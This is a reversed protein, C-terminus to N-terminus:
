AAAIGAYMESLGVADARLGDRLMEVVAPYLSHAADREGLTALAELSLLIFFRDAVVLVGGAFPVTDRERWEDLFRREGRYAELLLRWGRVWGVRSAPPDLDLAAECQRRAEDWEGKWFHSVSRVYSVWFSWGMREFRAPECTHAYAEPDGKLMAVANTRAIVANQLAAHQGLHVALQEAEEATAVAEVPKGVNLLCVSLVSLAEALAWLDGAARLATVAAKGVEVSRSFKAFDSEALAQLGLVQGLVQQDGLREALARADSLKSVFTTYDGATGQCGGLLALTRAREVTEGDPVFREAQEAVALAESRRFQWQLLLVLEWATRAVAEADGLRRYASFAETLDRVADELRGLSRHTRGCAFLISCREEDNLQDFSLARAYFGLADEFAAAAVAQHGARTLYRLAKLADVGAGAEYFHHALAAVHRVGGAAHVVEIAEGVRRHLRQRRPLSLSADLTQRILEHAFTYRVERDVTAVTILHAGEADELAELLLDGKVEAAADLVALEFNRGIVAATTLARRADDSVRELRRGVLLRVGAPVRLPGVGPCSRWRGAEDFLRGEEKLHQVVEEVFFPNGETQDHIARVLARPPPQGGLAELMLAVDAEPLPTLMIRTAHRVRILSELSKTSPRTADLDVDRYTGVVLLPLTALRQALYQMLLLTAKDAWQLDELVTVMPTVRTAREMFTEYANFLFRRRHEPPLELPQPIDPFLQRLELAINSVEPAADGLMDRFAARPVTKSLRGLIEVFPMLPPSGETEYCHGVLALCGRQRALDLLEEALRTKGVGPEGGILVLAGQGAVAAEVLRRMQVREAQHGVYPTRRRGGSPVWDPQPRAILAAIDRRLQDLDIRIDRFSQYRHRADKALLRDLIAQATESMTKAYQTIPPPAHRLIASVTAAPSSRTFPHVGALLEYFMIGFAFIDSREDAGGELLQEPASYRQAGIAVGPDRPASVTTTEAAPACLVDLGCGFDLVRVTGDPTLMISSPKLGRHIIGQEHAAHLADAIGLAMSISEDLPMPGHAIHTALTRGEILECVLAKAGGQRGQTADGSGGTAPEAEEVGYVRGINPHDLSALVTTEREFRALRDPDATLAEPLFALAVDRDRTRDRARYRPGLDGEGVLVTVMYSGIRTGVKSATDRSGAPDSLEGRLEAVSMQRRSSDPDLAREVARVLRSPLDQRHESLRTRWGVRHAARIEAVTRGGVPYSGTALHFLLVGLGYLDSQRTAPKREFLEPALYLPTGAMGGPAPAEASAIGDPLAQGTGFDGLVLRHGADRMVNQAKVDRHLLSADHVAGLAECLAIGIQVVEDGPFPGREGLEAELTRGEILEM